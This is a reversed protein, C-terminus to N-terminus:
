LRCAWPVYRGRICVDPDFRTPNFGMERLTQSLHAHWRNGSTPFGYLAKVVEVLTRESMLGVAEFDPGARTYVKDETEAHLYANGIDGTMVELDNDAAITMLIRASVSKMTSAYVEHGTSNVVHGGIVLRSKRRLDVKIDFIMRLLAFKFGKARAKHLSLPFKKFVEM